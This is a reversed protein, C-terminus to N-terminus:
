SASKPVPKKGNTEARKSKLSQVLKQAVILVDKREDPISAELIVASDLQIDCGMYEGITEFLRKVKAEQEVSMPPLTIKKISM